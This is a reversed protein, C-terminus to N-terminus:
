FETEGNPTIIGIVPMDICYLFYYMWIIYRIMTSPVINSESHETVDLEKCGWPSCHVLSRKGHSEGPLIGSHTAM